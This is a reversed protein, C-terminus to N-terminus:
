KNIREKVIEVLGQFTSETVTNKIAGELDKICLVKANELQYQEAKEKSKFFVADKMIHQINNKNWTVGDLNSLLRDGEQYVHYVKEGEYVRQNDGNTTFLYEVKGKIEEFYFVGPHEIVNFTTEKKDRSFEKITLIQGIYNIKDGVTYVNGKYEVSEISFNHREFMEDLTWKTQNVDSDPYKFTGDDQRYCIGTTDYNNRFSLIKVDNKKDEQKYVKDFWIDLVGAKKFASDISNDELSNNSKGFHYGKYAFNQIAYLKWWERGAIGQVADIYDIFEEKLKYGVVEKEISISQEEQKTNHKIFVEASIILYHSAIFWKRCEITQRYLSICTEVEKMDWRTNYNWIYGLIETVKDWEKQTSCHVVIKKDKCYEKTYKIEEM